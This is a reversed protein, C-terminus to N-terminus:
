QGSGSGFGSGSEAGINLNINGESLLKGQLVGSGSGGGYGEGSNMIVFEPNTPPGLEVNYFCFGGLSLLLIAAIAFRAM